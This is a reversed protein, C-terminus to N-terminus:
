GVSTNETAITRSGQDAQSDASSDHPQRDAQSTERNPTGLLGPKGLQKLSKRDVYWLWVFLPFFLIIAWQYITLDLWVHIEPRIFETLFRYAFYALFYLKILQGRLMQKRLLFFLIVAATLHFAAEYLQTPHRAFTEENFVVGWPLTTQTGYCCGGAFCALRGIGVGVAVPVVFSDGTKTKISLSWKAGEVGLYGGVLGFLITKGGLPSGAHMLVSDPFVFFPLKAFLVAAFFGWLGLYIRQSRNLVLQQRTFRAVIMASLVAAAMIIPYSWM